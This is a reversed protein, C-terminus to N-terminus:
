IKLQILLNGNNFITPCVCAMSHWLASYHFVVNEMLYKENSRPLFTSVDFLIFLMFYESREMQQVHSISSAEAQHVITQISQQAYIQHYLSMSTSTLQPLILFVKQRERNADSKM